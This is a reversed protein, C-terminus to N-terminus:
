KHEWRPARKELFAAVGEHADSLKMLEDLYLKENAELHAMVQERCVKMTARKAMRVVPRSLKRLNDLYENVRGDFEDAPFVQNVLGIALAEDAKITRGLACLELAKKIGVQWPLICAAVPPFVGV